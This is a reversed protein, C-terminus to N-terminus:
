LGFSMERYTAGEIAGTRVVSANMEADTPSFINSFSVGFSEPRSSNTLSEVLLTNSFSSAAESTGWSERQSGIRMSALHALLLTFLLLTPSAHALGLLHQTALSLRM